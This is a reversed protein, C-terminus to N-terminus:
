ESECCRDQTQETACTGRQADADPEAKECAQENNKTRREKGWRQQQQQQGADNEGIAMMSDPATRAHALRSSNARPHHEHEREAQSGISQITDLRSAVPRPFLSPTSTAFSSNSRYHPEGGQSVASPKQTHRRFASRFRSPTRPRANAAVVGQAAPPPDLPVFRSSNVAYASPEATLNVATPATSSRHHVASLQSHSPPPVPLFSRLSPNISAATLSPAPLPQTRPRPQLHRHASLPYAPQPALQSRYQTSSVQAATTATTPTDKVPPPPPLPYDLRQQLNSGSLTLPTSAAARAGSRTGPRSGSKPPTMEPESESEPSPASTEAVPAIPSAPRLATRYMSSRGSGTEYNSVPRRYPTLPGPVMYRGSVPSDSYSNSLPSVVEETHELSPGHDSSAPNFMSWRAISSSRSLADASSRRRFSMQELTPLARWPRRDVAGLAPSPSAPLSSNRSLALTQRLHEPLPFDADKSYPPPPPVWNDADSEHPLETGDTRRYEVVGSPPIQPARRRSLEVATASRYLTQRSRPNTHSYPGDFTEAAEELTVGDTSSVPSAPAEHQTLAPAERDLGFGVATPLPPVPPMPEDAPRLVDAVSTVQSRPIGDRRALTRRRVIAIETDMDTDEEKLPQPEVNGVEITIEKAEDGGRPSWNFDLIILRGGDLSAMEEQELEDSLTVGGPAGIILRERVCQLGKETKPGIVWCVQNVASVKAIRQGKAFVNRYKDVLVQWRPLHDMESRGNGGSVNSPGVADIARYEEDSPGDTAAAHSDLDEPVGYLWVESGMFGAAVLEGNPTIAPLTSPTLASKSPQRECATKPKPGTFYTTGNRLDDTRVARFSEFVRDYTLTWNADHDIKRPLLAAHSCDRSSYPFLIQSTWMHSIVEAQPIGEATETFYPASVVVTSPSKSGLTTGLLMTGDESFSLSDVRESKVARKDTPLASNALSYVEVGGDYAVALVEGHPSLTLTHAPGNLEVSRVFKPAEEELGYVNVRHSTSLVALRKGNQLIHASLPKRVVKLERKIYPIESATEIVIIRSSSIALCWHGRSSFSFEFAEGYPFAGSSSTTTSILNIITQRPRTFVSFLNRKAEQVFQRKLKLLSEENFPGTIVSHATSFSPCRSLHHAYLHPTESAARWLRHEAVEAPLRTAAPGDHVPSKEPRDKVENGGDLPRTAREAERM